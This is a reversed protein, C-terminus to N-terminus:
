DGGPAAVAASHQAHLAAAGRRSLTADAAQELDLGAAAVRGSAQLEGSADAMASAAHTTPHVNAAARAGGRAAVDGKM